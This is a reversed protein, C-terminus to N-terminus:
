WADMYKTMSKNMAYMLSFCKLQGTACVHLKHNLMSVTKIDKDTSKSSFVIFLLCFTNILPRICPLSAIFAPVYDSHFVGKAKLVAPPWKKM